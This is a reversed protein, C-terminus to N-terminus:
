HVQASKEPAQSVSNNNRCARHLPTLWRSDKWNVLKDPDPASGILDEAIGAFNLYAALHLPTSKTQSDAVHSQEPDTALIARVSLEDGKLVSSFIEAQFSNFIMENQLSLVKRIM